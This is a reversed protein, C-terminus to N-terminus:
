DNNFSSYFDKIEDKSVKEGENYGHYEILCRWIFEPCEVNNHEDLRRVGGLSDMGSDTGDSISGDPGDDINVSPTNGDQENTKGSDAEDPMIGDPGDDINVPPSNGDQEKTMDSDTGANPVNSDQEKTM